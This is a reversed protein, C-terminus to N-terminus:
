YGKYLPQCKLLRLISLYSGKITGHKNISNKAYESCTVSYRCGSNVGFLQSLAPSILMQYLNITKILLLKM